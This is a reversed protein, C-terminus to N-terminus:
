VHSSNLRTSKRDELLAAYDRSGTAIIAPWSESTQASMRDALEPTAIVLRAESNTLIWALEKPHLKANIPVAVLGARWIGYILPFFEGCNEMVLGVREGPKLGHRQLLAGAIAAAQNEFEAYTLTGRDATVAPGDPVYRAMTQLSFSLNM